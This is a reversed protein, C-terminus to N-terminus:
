SKSEELHMGCKPCRGPQDSTVEPHMPCAYKAHVAAENAPQAAAGGTSPAAAPAPQSPTKAPAEARALSATTVLLAAGAVAIASTLFERRGSNSEKKM